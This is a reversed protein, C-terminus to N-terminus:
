FSVFIFLFSSITYQPLYVFFLLSPISHCIFLSLFLHYVTAFLCLFSSITYQPLHVFFPLSPISHCIFFSLFLHYVTAFSSLPNHTIPIHERMSWLLSLLSIFECLLPNHIPIKSLLHLYSCLSFVIELYRNM